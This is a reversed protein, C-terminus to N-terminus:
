ALRTRNLPWTLFDYVRHSAMHIIESAWGMDVRITTVRHSLHKPM